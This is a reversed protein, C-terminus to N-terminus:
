LFNHCIWSDKEVDSYVLLRRAANNHLNTKVNLYELGAIIQLEILVHDGLRDFVETRQAGSLLTCAFASLSQMELARLEM